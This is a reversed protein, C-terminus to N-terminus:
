RDGEREKLILRGRWVPKDVGKLFIELNDGLGSVRGAAIVELGSGSEDSCITVDRGLILSRERYRDLLASYRGDLLSRYNRDLARILKEFVVGQTSASSQPAFDRLAAVRPVFPTPTISPTTEVNLGIGIIAAAVTNGVTQSYAVVGCVKCGDVLVDNVWKIGARGQLGPLSDIADVASVAALITFGVRCHEVPRAPALYASLHINGPCASWPRDKFGHFRDSSGALCLIGDPLTNGRRAFEILLDYHSRPASEVLFLYKWLLDSELSSEHFSHGRYLSESLARINPPQDAPSSWPKGTPPLVQDAFSISDTFVVM